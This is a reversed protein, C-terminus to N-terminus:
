HGNCLRPPGDNPGDDDSYTIDDTVLDNGPIRDDLCLNAINMNFSSDECSISFVFDDNNHYALEGHAAAHREYGVWIENSSKRQGIPGLAM